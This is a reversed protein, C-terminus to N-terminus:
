KNIIELDFPTHLALYLKSRNSIRIKGHVLVHSGHKLAPPTKFWKRHAKPISISLNGLSFSWGNKSLSAVHGSVLRFQGISNKDAKKADIVQYYPHHWIGTKQKRAQQEKALLTDAHRFNPAFVYLHALGKEIMHANIWTGDRLYVHALLRGYSDHQDSDFELRVTQGFLLSTLEKSAQKAFPQGPKDNRAIEPTNIGLLRVKEGSETKFTDGDYIQAVNVWRSTGIQSFTGAQCQGIFPLTALLAVAAFLSPRLSRM